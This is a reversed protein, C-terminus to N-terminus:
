AKYEIPEGWHLPLSGYTKKWNKYIYDYKERYHWYIEPTLVLLDQGYAQCPVDKDYKVHHGIDPAYLNKWLDSKKIPHELFESLVTAGDREWLEEMVIVHMNDGFFQRITNIEDVYDHFLLDAPLTQFPEEISRKDGKKQVNFVYNSFARRVPDRAMCLVKIDFESKLTKTYQKMSEYYKKVNARYYQKRVCRGMYADGVSKYGKTIVHDHLAHYFDMYKSISPNGTTAKTFHDLPFDDLTELDIRLNMRHTSPQYSRFNEWEGKIHMNYIKTVDHDKYYVLKDKKWNPKSLYKFTKTYGFHAYRLNRQLTYMLPSTASWGWGCFLLLKPKM